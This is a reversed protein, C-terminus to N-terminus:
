GPWRWSIFNRSSSSCSLLSVSVSFSIMRLDMGLVMCSTTSTNTVTLPRRWPWNTCSTNARLIKASRLSAAGKLAIWIAAALIVTAVLVTATDLLTLRRDIM